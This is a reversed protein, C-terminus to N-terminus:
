GRNMYLNGIHAYKARHEPPLPLKADTALSLFAKALESRVTAREARRRLWSGARVLADAERLITRARSLSSHRTLVRERGSQAIRALGEADALARAAVVAAATADGRPYVLIDQGVRFLEGLGNEVDETLVAAGCAAAQFVRFNVEGAASQNLVIRSRAFIPQYRGSTVYLPHVRRFAELFRAREVNISGSVTGVFSVPIDRPADDPTDYRPECFLPMWRARRSLSEHAFLDLYDKQAVLVLDFGGSYPVHWPNCYQDISFAITAAPLDEFGFVGPPKGIDCWLVVDPVFGCSDLIDVLRGLPLQRDIVVDDGPRPGITLVEHGLERFEPVFYNGDINLIRM